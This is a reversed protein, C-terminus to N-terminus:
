TPIHDAPFLDALVGAKSHAIHDTLLCAADDVRDDILAHLIREHDDLATHMRSPYSTDRVQFLAHQSRLTVLFQILRQNNSAHILLNHLGMDAQLFLAIPREDLKARVSSLIDLQAQLDATDLHPAALRLALAELAGRLDYIDHVDRYTFTHVWFGRRPDAHVLGDQTLRVLAQRVPTRSVGLRLSLAVDSLRQGETLTNTVLLKWIEEYAHDVATPVVGRQHGYLLDFLVASVSASDLAPEIDPAGNEDRHMAQSTMRSYWM